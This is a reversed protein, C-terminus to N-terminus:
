PHSSNLVTGSPDSVVMGNSDFVPAINGQGNSNPANFQMGSPNSVVAGSSDIVPAVNMEAGTVPVAQAGLPGANLLAGSPDSVLTGSSDFVPAVSRSEVGSAPVLVKDSSLAKMNDAQATQLAIPAIRNEPQHQSAAFLQFIAWVALISVGFVAAATTFRKMNLEM